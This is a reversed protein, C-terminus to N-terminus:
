EDEWHISRGVDKKIVGFRFLKVDSKQWSRDDIHAM